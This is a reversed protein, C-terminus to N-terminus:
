CTKIFSDIRPTIKYQKKSGKKMIKLHSTESNKYIFFFPSYNGLAM